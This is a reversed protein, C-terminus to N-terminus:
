SWLKRNLAEESIRRKAREPAADKAAEAAKASETAPTAHGAGPPNLAVVKDADQAAKQLVAEIAGAPDHERALERARKREASNRARWNRKAAVAIERRDVGTRAPDEAICIFDHSGAADAEAFVYILGWDGPDQRVHVWEDMHLGLEAAIYEGGDVRIGDKGVKRRGDGAAPALLVDMGREDSIRKPAKGTWSAAKEFPSLGDLGARPERGYVHECWDDIRAQLEEATLSSRFLITDDKGRRAAFSQRGRIRQADAVDHGCFGGLQTLLDHSMIGIFREVHPKMDPSYPPLIDHEIELDRVVRQLHKSTYDKGEDTRIVGPVGWELLCRRVLGKIAEASSRRTVVARGRRAWVELAVCVDWRLGDACIVDLRTSDLEWLQNLATVDWSGDGFAPMTRSRHGDPDSCASLAFGNEERWRRMHRRVSAIGPAQGNMRAELARVVNRATVHHPNARLMAEVIGAIAPDDATDSRRGGRGPMLAATGGKAHANHWRRLTSWSLSPVLERTDGSVGDGPWAGAFAKYAPVLALGSAAHFKTFLHVAEARADAVALPTSDSFASPSPPPSCSGADGEETPTGPADGGTPVGTDAGPDRADRLAEQTVAPLSSELWELVTRAGRKTKRSIWGREAGRLQLGRVGPMGPLGALDRTAHWTETM